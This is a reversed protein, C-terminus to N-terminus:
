LHCVAPLHCFKCLPPDGYSISMLTPMEFSNCAVGTRLHSRYSHGCAACTRSAANGQFVDCTGMRTNPQSANSGGKKYAHAELQAQLDKWEQKVYDPTGVAKSWLRLFLAEITTM